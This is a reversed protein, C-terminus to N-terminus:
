SVRERPEVGILGERRAISIAELKSHAGLRRIASQVHNRVTNVSLELQQSVAATSAGVALRGLVELERATLQYRRSTPSSIEEVLTNVLDSALARGGARVTHVAAALESLRQRKLLYGSAGAELAQMVAKYEAFVGLVIIQTEPTRDLLRAIAEPTEVDPLRSDLVVVDPRDETVAAEAAEISHAIGILAIDPTAALAAALGEAVMVHDDVLLVTASDIV